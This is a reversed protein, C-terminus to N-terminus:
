PVIPPPPLPDPDLPPLIIPENPEGPDGLGCPLGPDLPEDDFIDDM